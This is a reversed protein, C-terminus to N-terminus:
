EPVSVVVKKNQPTTNERHAIEHAYFFDNVVCEGCFPPKLSIAKYNTSHYLYNTHIKGDDFRYQVVVKSTDHSIYADVVTEGVFLFAELLKGDFRGGHRGPQCQLILRPTSSSDNAPAALYKGDLRYQTYRASTFADTKEEINWQPANQGFASFACLLSLFLVVHIRNM